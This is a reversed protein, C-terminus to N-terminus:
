LSILTKLMKRAKDSSDTDVSATISNLMYLPMMDCLEPSTPKGGVFNVKGYLMAEVECGLFREAFNLAVFSVFPLDKPGYTIDVLISAGDDIADVLKGLLEEHVAANEAFETEVMRFEVRAGVAATAALLEQRFIEVNKDCFGHPDRKVLAIVTLEDEATVTKELYANIPYVVARDSSPLIGNPDTYVCRDLTDKMTINCIVTKKM